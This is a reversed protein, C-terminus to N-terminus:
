KDKISAGAAPSDGTHSEIHGKKKNRYNGSHHQKSYDYDCSRCANDCNKYCKTTKTVREPGDSLPGKQRKRSTDKSSTRDIVPSPPPPPPPTGTDRELM